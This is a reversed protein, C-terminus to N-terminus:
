TSQKAYDTLSECFGRIGPHLTRSTMNMAFLSERIEGTMSAPATIKKFIGAPIDIGHKKAGDYMAALNEAFSAGMNGQFTLASQRAFFSQTKRAPFVPAVFGVPEKLALGLMQRFIEPSSFAKVSALEPRIKEKSLVARCIEAAATENIAWISPHAKRDSSGASASADHASVMPSRSWELLPTPADYYHMLALWELYSTDAPIKEGSIYLPAASRFEDIMFSFAASRKQPDDVLTALSSEPFDEGSFEGRFIWRDSRETQSLLYKKMQEWSTFHIESDELILDGAPRSIILEKSKM